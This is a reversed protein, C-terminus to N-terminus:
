KEEKVMKIAKVPCENACIGCGKCYELDVEFKGDERKKIAGEPCFIWCIGCGTCKEFDTIPKLARWSGTKTQSTSGRSELVAGITVEKNNVKGELKKFDIM